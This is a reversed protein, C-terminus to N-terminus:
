LFAANMLISTRTRDEGPNIRGDQLLIELVAPYGKVCADYLLKNGETINKFDNQLLEKLTAHLTEQEAKLTQANQSDQETKLLHSIHQYASLFSALEMYNAGNLFKYHQSLVQFYLNM